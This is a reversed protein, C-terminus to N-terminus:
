IGCCTSAMAIRATDMSPKGNTVIPHPLVFVIPGQGQGKKTGKKTRKNARVFAEHEEPLLVVVDDLSVGMEELASKTSAKKGAKPGSLLRARFDEDSWAKVIVAALADNPHYIPCDPTKSM